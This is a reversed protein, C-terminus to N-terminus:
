HYEKLQAYVLDLRYLMGKATAAQVRNEAHSLCEM